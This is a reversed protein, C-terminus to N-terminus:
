ALEVVRPAEVTISRQGRSRAPPLDFGARTYRDLAEILAEEAKSVADAESHGYAVAMPVDPFTAMVTGDTRQSLNLAFTLM